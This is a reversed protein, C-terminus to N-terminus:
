QSDATPQRSEVFARRASWSRMATFVGTWVLAQLLVGSLLWLRYEALSSVGWAQLDLLGSLFWLPGLLLVYIEFEPSGERLVEGFRGFRAWAALSALGWVAAGTAIGKGWAVPRRTAHRVEARATPSKFPNAAPSGAPANQQSNM